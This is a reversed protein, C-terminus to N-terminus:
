HKLFGNNYLTMKDSSIKPVVNEFLEIIARLHYYFCRNWPLSKRCGSWVEICTVASSTLNTFFGSHTYTFYFCLFFFAVVIFNHMLLVHIAQNFCPKRQNFM